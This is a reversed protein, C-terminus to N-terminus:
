GPSGLIVRLPQPGCLPFVTAGTGEKPETM